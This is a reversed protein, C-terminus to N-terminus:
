KLKPMSINLAKTIYYYRFVEFIRLLDVNQDLLQIKNKVSSNIEFPAKLYKDAYMETFFLFNDHHTSM